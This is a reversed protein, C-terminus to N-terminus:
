AERGLGGAAATRRQLLVAEPVSCQVRRDEEVGSGETRVKFMPQESRPKPTDTIWTPPIPWLEIPRGTSMTKEKLWFAEGSLDVAAATFEILDRGTHFPNGDDLLELSPHSEVEILEAQKRAQRRLQESPSRTLSRSVSRATRPNRARFVKWEVSALSTAVKRVTARLFPSRSYAALLDKTGKRPLTTRSQAAIQAVFGGDAKVAAAALRQIERDSLERRRRFAM